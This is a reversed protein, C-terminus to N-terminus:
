GPNSRDLPTAGGSSGNRVATSTSSYSSVLYPVAFNMALKRLTSLSLPAEIVMDFHNVLLLVPAVFSAVKCARVVVERSFFVKCFERAPFM